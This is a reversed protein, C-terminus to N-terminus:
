PFCLKNETFVVLNKEHVTEMEKGPFRTVPSTKKKM